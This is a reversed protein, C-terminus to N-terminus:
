GTPNFMFDGSDLAGIKVNALLLQDNHGLGIAVDNGAQHAHAKLETFSGYFASIDIIDTGGPGAVFDAITMSGSGKEIRVLDDGGGLFLEGALNGGNGFVFVDNGDGLVVAGVIQGHNI